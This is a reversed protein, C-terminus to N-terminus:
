MLILKLNLYFLLFLTISILACYVDKYKDLKSAKETAWGFIVINYFPIISFLLSSVTQNNLLLKFIGISLIGIPVTILILSYALTINVCSFFKKYSVNSGFLKTVLYIFSIILILGLFVILFNYTLSNINLSSIDTPIILIITSLILAILSGKLTVHDFVNNFSKNNFLALKFGSKINKIIM